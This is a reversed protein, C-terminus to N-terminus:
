TIQMRWRRSTLPECTFRQGHRITAVSPFASQVTWIEIHGCVRREVRVVVKTLPRKLPAASERRPQRRRLDLGSLPRGNPPRLAVSAVVKGRRLITKRPEAGLAARRAATTEKNVTAWARREAEKKPVGGDEYGEEIHEAQRKQKDTYSSKDGRPM